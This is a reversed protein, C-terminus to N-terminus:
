TTFQVAFHIGDLYFQKKLTNHVFYFEDVSWMKISYTNHFTEIRM